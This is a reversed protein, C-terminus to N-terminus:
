HSSVLTGAALIMCLVTKMEYCCLRECGRGSCLVGSVLWTLQMSLRLILQIPSM